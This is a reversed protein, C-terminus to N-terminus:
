QSNLEMLKKELKDLTYQLRDVDTTKSVKQPEAKALSASMKKRGDEHQKEKLDFSYEEEIEERLEPDAMLLELRKSFDELDKIETKLSNILELKKARLANFDELRTLLLIGDRAVTMMRIRLNKTDSIRSFYEM